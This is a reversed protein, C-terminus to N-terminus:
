VFCHLWHSTQVQMSEATVKNGRTFAKLKEYPEEVGYGLMVAINAGATDLVVGHLAM